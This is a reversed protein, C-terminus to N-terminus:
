QRQQSESNPNGQPKNFRQRPRGAKRIDREPEMAIASSVRLWAHSIATVGNSLSAFDSDFTMPWNPPRIRVTIPYTTDPVTAAPVTVGTSVTVWVAPAAM